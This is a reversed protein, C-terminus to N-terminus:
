FGPFAKRLDALRATDGTVSAPTHAPDLRGYVLRLLAEAPMTLDAAAVGDLAHLSVEPDLTVRYARAPDTTAIIVPDAGTVPKGSLAATGPISDLLQAVAVPDVTATPDLAVAIDWTHVAHEGLRMATLGDLDRTGGFMDVAFADRDAGSVTELRTVLEENAAISDSVQDRPDKANWRDWISLFVDRAPPDSKELGAALFLGFIEAQSGLHSAVDAISWEDDYSRDRVAGDSLPQLVAAFRDQSQRLADIVPSM